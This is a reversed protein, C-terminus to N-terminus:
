SVVPNIIWKIYWDKKGEKNEEMELCVIGSNQFRCVRGEAMGATLYSTLRELFPLHSVIMMNEEPNLRGACEKVDDLPAIGDMVELPAAVGLIGQMIEATQEARKKGSHVIRRVDVAYNKAVGALRATEERGQEILGKEPDIDKPASIGHQVLFLAM